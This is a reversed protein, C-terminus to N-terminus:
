TKFAKLKAFFVAIHTKLYMHWKEWFPVYSPRPTQPYVTFRWGDLAQYPEGNKFSLVKDKEPLYLEPHQRFLGIAIEIIKTIDAGTNQHLWMLDEKSQRDIIVGLRHGGAELKTKYHRKVRQNNDTTLIGPDSKPKAHVFAGRPM